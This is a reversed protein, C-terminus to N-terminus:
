WLRLLPRSAFQYACKTPQSTHRGLIWTFLSIIMIKIIKKHSLFRLIVFEPTSYGLPYLWGLVGM